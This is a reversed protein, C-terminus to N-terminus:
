DRSRWRPEPDSRAPTEIAGRDPVVGSQRPEAPRHSQQLRALGMWPGLGASLDLRPSALVPCSAYRQTAGDSVFVQSVGGVALVLGVIGWVWYGIGLGRASRSRTRCSILFMPCKPDAAIEAAVVDKRERAQGMVYLPTHLPIATETFQRRHDSHSVAHAPGKAYYLPDGRGCTQNFITVPEIKAGEPQVRVVGLDDKLYFRTQEGGQAVTTWGSEHRQATRAEQRRQGHVDGHGHPVLAEQVSWSYCVCPKEALHSVCPGNPERATGQGRGHRHVRRDDQVHAHRRGLSPPPQGAAAWLCLLALVGGVWPCLPVFGEVNAGLMHYWSRMEVPAEM